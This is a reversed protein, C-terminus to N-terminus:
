APVEQGISAVLLQASLIRLSDDLYPSDPSNSMSQLNSMTEKPIITGEGPTSPMSWPIGFIEGQLHGPIYNHIEPNYAGSKELRLLIARHKGRYAMQEKYLKLDEKYKKMLQNYEKRAIRKDAM